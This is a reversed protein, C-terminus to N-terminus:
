SEYPPNENEEDDDKWSEDSDDDEADMSLQSHIEINNFFSEIQSTLISTLKNNDISVILIQELKTNISQLLDRLDSM